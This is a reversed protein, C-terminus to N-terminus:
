SALHPCASASEWTSSGGKPPFIPVTAADGRQCSRPATRAPRLRGAGPLRGAVPRRQRAASPDPWCRPPNGTREPDHRGLHRFPEHVRLAHERCEQLVPCRRCIAVAREERWRRSPGREGDPHFFVDPSTHRCLGRQQWEWLAAVPVPQVSM